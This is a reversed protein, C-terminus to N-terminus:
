AAIRYVRITAYRVPQCEFRYGRRNSRTFFPYNTWCWRVVPIGELMRGVTSIYPYYYM